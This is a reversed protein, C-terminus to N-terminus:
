ENFMDLDLDGEMENNEEERVEERVKREIERRYRDEDPGDIPQLDEKWRGSPTLYKEQVTRYTEDAWLDMVGMRHRFMWHYIQRKSLRVARKLEAGHQEGITVTEKPMPHLRAYTQSGFDSLLWRAIYYVRDQGWHLHLGHKQNHRIGTRLGSYPLIADTLPGEVYTLVDPGLVQERYYRMAKIDGLRYGFMDLYFMTAGRDMMRRFRRGMLELHERDTARPLINDKKWKWRYNMAYTRGVTVGFRKGAREFVNRFSPWSEQVPQPLIDFDSRFWMRRPQYGCQAWMILGKGGAEDLTSIASEAWKRAGEPTDLRRKPHYALPSKESKWHDGDPEAAMRQIVFRHDVEYRPELGHLDRFHHRYPQLLHKWDRNTSLRLRLYFTRAGGPPIPKEANYTLRRKDSGWGGKWRILTRTLGTNLPTAGVGYEEDAGYSGGLRNDWGPHMHRLRRDPRPHPLWGWKSHPSLQRADHRGRFRFQLAGFKTINIGAEPHYNEVKARITLDEGEFSYDFTARMHQHLHIVRCSEPGTRTFSKKRVPNQGFKGSPSLTRWNGEALTREGMTIRELGAASIHFEIGDKTAYAFDGQESGEVTEIDRPGTAAPLPEAGDAKDFADVHQAPLEGLETAVDLLVEDYVIAGMGRSYLEEASERVFAPDKSEILGYLSSGPVLWRLIRRNRWGLRSVAEDNERRISTYGPSFFLMADSPYQAFTHIPRDADQMKAGHTMKDRLYRMIRVDDLDDGFDELLFINAGIKKISTLRFRCGWMHGLHKRVDPDVPLWRCRDTSTFVPWRDPRGALGVLRNTEALRDTILDKINEHVRDPAMHFMAAYQLGHPDHGGIQRFVIGLADAKRLSPVLRDVYEQVAEPQDLRIEGEAYGLPNDRDEEAVEGFAGPVANWLATGSGPAPQVPRTRVPHYAIPRVVSEYRVRGYSAALERKWPELLHKWDTDDSFRMILQFTRAGEARVVSSAVYHLSYTHKGGAPEWWLLSPGAWSLRFGANQEFRKLQWSLLDPFSGFDRPALGVGIRGASACSGGIPNAASPHFVSLGKESLERETHIDMVGEPASPFAFKLGGLRVARLDAEGHHNEVRATIRLDEGEFVYDYVVTLSEHVHRVRAQAPGLRRLVRKKVPSPRLDPPTVSPIRPESAWEGAEMLQWKGTALVGDKTRVASLGEETVVCAVGSPTTYRLEEGEEAHAGALLFLVGICVALLRGFKRLDTSRM